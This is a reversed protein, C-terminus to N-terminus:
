DETGKVPKGKNGDQSPLSEIEKLFQLSEWELDPPPFEGVYENEPLCGEMEGDNHLHEDVNKQVKSNLPDMPM